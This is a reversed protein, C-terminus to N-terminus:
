VIVTKTSLQVFFVNETKKEPNLQITDHQALFRPNKLPMQWTHVQNLEM